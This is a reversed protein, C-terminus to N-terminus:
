VGSKDNMQERNYFYDFAKENVILNSKQKISVTQGSLGANLLEEVIEVNIIDFYNYKLPIISRLNVEKMARSYEVVTERNVNSESATATNSVSDVYAVEGTFGLRIWTGRKIRRDGGLITFSGKRTFPLYFTSEILYKFDNVIFSKFLDANTAKKDGYLAQYSVYNDPIKLAHNGFTNIFQPFYVIPIHALAIFNTNGLFNDQPMIQYVSYYETEWENNYNTIDRGDVEVVFQNDLYDLIQSKTFPPQRAIFNFFAGYTDGWFEVFPSQCIKNIQEWLTGDPKTISSDAVRRDDLQSDVLLKTIQWVGNQEVESLVSKDAGNIEYTKSKNAGYFYFLDNDPPLVGVNTLQNFIFGLTDRISRHSYAFLVALESNVFLRKEYKNDTQSNIFFNESGEVLSYPYFFSGDETLLKTFDRGSINLELSNLTSNYSQSNTDVLGIMDYNGRPIQSKFRDFDFANKINRDIESQLKEFRIFVVDNQQIYRHFYSDNVYKDDRRYFLNPTNHTNVYNISDNRSFNFIVDNLDDIPALTINFNGQDSKSTSLSKVFNSVDVLRDQSKIYILVEFSLQILNIDSEGSISRVRNDRIYLPDNQIAAFEEDVFTNFDGQELFLDKGQISLIENNTQDKPIMLLTGVKLPANLDLSDANPYDEIEEENYLNSIRDANRILLDNDAYFIFDRESGIFSKVLSIGNNIFASLTNISSDRHIYEHWNKAM